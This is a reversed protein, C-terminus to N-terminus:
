FSLVTSQQPTQIFCSKDTQHNSSLQLVSNTLDDVDDDYDDEEDDERVISGHVVRLRSIHIRNTRILIFPLSLLVM